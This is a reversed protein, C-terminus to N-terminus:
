EELLSNEKIFNYTDDLAEALQNDSSINEVLYLFGQPANNQYKNNWWDNNILAYCLRIDDTGNKFIQLEFENGEIVISFPLKNLKEIIM